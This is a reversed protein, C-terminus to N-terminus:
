ASVRQSNIAPYPEYQWEDNVITVKFVSPLNSPLQCALIKGKRNKVMVLFRGNNIRTTGVKEYVDNLKLCSADGVLGRGRQRAYFISVALPYIAFVFIAISFLNGSALLVGGWGAFGIAVLGFIFPWLM